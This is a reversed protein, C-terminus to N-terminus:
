ELYGLARLREVTEKKLTNIDYGEFTASPMLEDIEYPSLMGTIVRRAEPTGCLNNKELPDDRLDFLNEEPFAARPDIKSLRPQKLKNKTYEPLTQIWKYECTRICYSGAGQSIVVDRCYRPDFFDRGTWSEPPTRGALRLVTPALDIQSIYSSDMTGARESFPLKIILPIHILEDYLSMIHDWAYHDFFEEGHDAVMIILTSDYLGSERLYGILHSLARDAYEIEGDYLSLLHGRDEERAGEVLPSASEGNFPHVYYPAHPEMYHLYMFFKDSGNRTWKIAKSSLDEATLYERHRKRIFAIRNILHYELENFKRLTPADPDVFPLGKIEPFYYFEDFGRHFRTEETINPNTSFAVTRYGIKKLETQLLPIDEPLQTSYSFVGHDIPLLSTFISAISPKTWYSNAFANTFVIGDGALQQMAPTDIEFGDPSIRDYRLADMLIFIIYPMDPKVHGSSIRGQDKIINGPSGISALGLGIFFLVFYSLLFLIVPRRSFGDAASFLKKFVFYFITFVIIILFMISLLGPIKISHVSRIGLVTEMLFDFICYVSSAGAAIGFLNRRRMNGPRTSLPLSIAAGLPVGLAAGIMGYYFIATLPATLRGYGSGITIAISEIIGAAAAGILSGTLTASFFPLFHTGSKSGTNNYDSKNL